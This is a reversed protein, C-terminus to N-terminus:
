ALEEVAFMPLDVADKELDAPLGHDDQAYPV